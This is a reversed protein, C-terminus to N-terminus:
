IGRRGFIATGVRVLTSGEEIAVEFDNSMGMSLESLMEPDHGDEVLEDRVQRLRRFFPRAQESDESWPPIVMLGRVRVASCNGAAELIQRAQDVPAGHKTLEGALDVQLLCNPRTGLDDAAQDLRSLLDLRDVSHIWAFAAAAKRAKNSQLHGILHWAIGLGVTEDMASIKTLAEQVRNEGFDTLGAAVGARIRSAPFTKSIAVLRITSPDRGVRDAAQALRDRVRAVNASIVDALSANSPESAM